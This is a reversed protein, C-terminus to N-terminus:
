GSVAKGVAKRHEAPVLIGRGLEESSVIFERVDVFSVGGVEVERVHIELDPGKPVKVLTKGQVVGSM